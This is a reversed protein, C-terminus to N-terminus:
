CFLFIKFVFMRKVLVNIHKVVPPCICAFIIACRQQNPDTHTRMSSQFGQQIAAAFCHVEIIRLTYVPFVKTEKGDFLSREKLNESESVLSTAAYRTEVHPKGGLM